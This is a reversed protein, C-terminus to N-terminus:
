FDGEAKREVEVDHRVQCDRCLDINLDDHGIPGYCDDCERDLLMEAAGIEHM